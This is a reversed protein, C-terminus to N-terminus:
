KSLRGRIHITGEHEAEDEQVAAPRGREGASALIGVFQITYTCLIKISLM